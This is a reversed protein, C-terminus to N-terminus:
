SIVLSVGNLGRDKLIRLINRLFENDERSNEAVGLMDHYGDESVGVAVLVSVNELEGGCCRM